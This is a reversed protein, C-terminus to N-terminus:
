DTFLKDIKRIPENPRNSLLVLHPLKSEVRNIDKVDFSGKRHKVCSPSHSLDEVSLVLIYVPERSSLCETLLKYYRDLSVTVLYLINTMNPRIVNYTLNGLSGLVKDKDSLSCFEHRSKVFPNGLINVIHESETANMKTFGNFLMFKSKPQIEYALYREVYKEKSVGESKNPIRFSKDDRDTIIYKSGEAAISKIKHDKKTIRNIISKVKKVDLDLKKAAYMIGIEVDDVTSINQLILDTRDSDLKCIKKCLYYDRLDM